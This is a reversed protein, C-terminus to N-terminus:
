FSKLYKDFELINDSIINIESPIGIDETVNDNASVFSVSM